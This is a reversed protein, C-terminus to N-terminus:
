ISGRVETVHQVEGGTVAVHPGAGSLMVKVRSKWMRKKM